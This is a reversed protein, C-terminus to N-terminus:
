DVIYATRSERALVYHMGGVNRVLGKLEMQALTSNVEYIPIGTKRCIQDVHMPEDSIVELLTKEAESEPVVADAEMHLPAMTLNLAELVDEAGMVLHAGSQILRNCGRSAPTLPSGPVAFVERGQELAHDVTILAGSREPAEVVLVGLAMGSILRNRAPFNRAEPPTGPPFSTILAGNGTIEAALKRNQPPYIVDIGTGMVAITRGGVEIAARHAATDIGQALGSVITVGNRALTGALNRAMALGNPTPKRTGIVAVAWEDDPLLSGKVYLVPPADDLNRLLAPYAEDELTLISAGLAEVKDAVAKPEVKGRAALLNRLARSSIGARELEDQPANWTAAASGFRSLLTRFTKPGIGEVGSLVAWYVREDANM